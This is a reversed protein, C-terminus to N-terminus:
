VGSEPILTTSGTLIASGTPSPLCWSGVEADKLGGKGPMQGGKEPLEYILCESLPWTFSNKTFIEDGHFCNLM